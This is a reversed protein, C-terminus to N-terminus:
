GEIDMQKLLKWGGIKGKILEEWGEKWYLKHM